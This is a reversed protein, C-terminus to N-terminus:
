RHTAPEANREWGARSPRSRSAPLLSGKRQHMQPARRRRYTASLAVPSRWVSVTQRERVSPRHQLLDKVVDVPAQDLNANDVIDVHQGSLKAIERLHNVDEVSV